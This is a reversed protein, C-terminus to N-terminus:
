GTEHSGFSKHMYKSSNHSRDDYYIILEVKTVELPIFKIFKISIKVRLSKSQVRHKCVCWGMVKPRMREALFFQFFHVALFFSFCVGFLQHSFSTLKSTANTVSVSRFIAFLKFQREDTTM